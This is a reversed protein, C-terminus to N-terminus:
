EATPMSWSAEPPDVGHSTSYPVCVHIQIPGGERQESFDYWFAAIEVEKTADTPHPVTIPSREMLGKCFEYGKNGYESLTHNYAENLLMIAAPVPDRAGSEADSKRDKRFADRVTYLYILITGEILMERVVDSTAPRYYHLPVKLVVEIVLYRAWAVFVIGASWVLISWAWKRLFWLGFGIAAFIGIGPVLILAGIDNLKRAAEPSVTRQRGRASDTPIPMFHQLLAASSPSEPRAFTMVVLLLFFAARSLNFLALLTVGLPRNVERVRTTQDDGM